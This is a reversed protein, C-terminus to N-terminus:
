CGAVESRRSLSADLAPDLRRATGAAARSLSIAARALARRPDLRPTGPGGPNHDGFRGSEALAVERALRNRAAERALDAQHQAVLYAQIVIM